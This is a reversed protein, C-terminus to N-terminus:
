AQSQHRPTPHTPPTRKKSLPPPQKGAVIPKKALLNGHDLECDLAIRKLRQDEGFKTTQKPPM